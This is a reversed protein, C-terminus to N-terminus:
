TGEFAVASRLIADPSLGVKLAALFVALENGDRFAEKPIFLTLVGVGLTLGIQSRSVAYVRSSPIELTLDPSVWKLKKGDFTLQFSTPPYLETLHAYIRDRVLPLLLKQSAWVFLGCGGGYLLMGVIPKMSSPINLSKVASGFEPVFYMTLLVFALAPGWCALFLLARNSPFYRRGYVRAQEITPRLESMYEYTLKSGDIEDGM